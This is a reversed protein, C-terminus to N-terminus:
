LALLRRLHNGIEKALQVPVANGIQTYKPVDREWIGAGPDGARRRGGTTRPGVFKYWDPFTQMRAWERVSVSRPQSFHIFDDPLSAVTLSPGKAGWRKPLLRQAFKKTRDNARIEGEHSIMYSYKRIIREQHHSYGHDTVPEGKRLVRSGDKTRRLLQQITTSAERPYTLTTLTNRYDPDILDGLLDILDPPKSSLRPPLYGGAISGFPAVKVDDRIGVILVRPRRQPVGYDKSEVLAEHSHYGEISRFAKLVDHWIEGKEGEPTWKGFMIGRVNEFLFMKPRFEEIARIMKKYLVNSPIQRKSLKFTRRIGIGSYGQCPPGGFVADVEGIGLVQKLRRKTQSIIGPKLLQNIDAFQFDELYPYADLRNSLYSAM